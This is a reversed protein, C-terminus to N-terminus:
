KEFFLELGDLGLARSVLEQQEAKHLAPYGAAPAASAARCSLALDVGQPLGNKFRHRSIFWAGQNKPEEQCWVFHKLHKYQAVVKEFEDYPFPYLQEIRIIAVNKLDHERRKELLEYYVKGSCGIVRTVSDSDFDDVEPIVVEFHGTALEQLSSVAMKHRLLSKPSMVILPKRFPRLVQRRLLHFIQSPTTPVCVQINDQAALQLYRELRASSHEPGMGEYGHPLLMVLGSLRNWKQWGSSVFQDIIVQACNAFDGFQAEWIVLSNAEAISFGYEFGLAGAECLLSDYVHVPTRQKSIYKLPRYSDGTVQDFLCAHRHFFTGRQADEGSLRVPVGQDLLTSYALMEACGWDLPQEGEIMKKRSRMVMDVNRQLKFSEPYNVLNAGLKKLKEVDVSTDIASMWKQNIFTTWNSAYHESLGGTLTPVVQGGNDLVDRFDNLLQDIEQQTVVGEKLLQAAYIERVGAHKDVIKYMMPQTARPEDVEQHGHKRFGILDVVVDKHFKLRYALALQMVKLVSEVDDANVHFVPASIMKAIDCCYHSSRIDRVHSTTFGVQNNLVLHISGGVDYARTKSMAFTEMVVGEGAVASDGHILVAMAYDHQAHGTKQEQRARVSGMIVPNIYELHSPNFALTLHMSGNNTKVDSSYGLHYKVDGSTMGYDQTGDFMQFLEQSSQGMVNLLVNLRGRHAMGIKIECLNFDSAQQVLYDLAPIFSDVGEGSFRKQGPYKVDLYKELGNAATLKKLIYKKQESNFSKELLQNEIQDRLWEREVEDDIYMYEYGVSSCYSKELHGMIERLTAQPKSLVAETFFVDDLDSDVLQHGPLELRSDKQANEVLPNVSANYHGSRRFADILNSVQSQKSSVPITSAVVHKQKALKIFHERVESHSIEQQGGVSQLSSFYRRWELSVKSSDKLFEEYLDEIYSINTGALYSGQYFEAMTPTNRKSNM